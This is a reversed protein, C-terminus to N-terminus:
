RRRWTTGDATDVVDIGEAALDDRIRDSTAWDKAARAAAREAVLVDIRPDSGTLDADPAEADALGLGLARDVDILVAWLDAPALDPDRVADWVAALARPANLDDALAEWV